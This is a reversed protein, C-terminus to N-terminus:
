PLGGSCTVTTTTNATTLQSSSSRDLSLFITGHIPILKKQGTTVSCNAHSSWRTKRWLVGQEVDGNVFDCATVTPRFFAAPIIIMRIMQGRTWDTITIVCFPTRLKSPQAKMCRFGLPIRHTRLMAIRTIGHVVRIVPCWATRTPICPILETNFDHWFM